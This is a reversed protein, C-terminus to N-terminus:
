GLVRVTSVAQLCKTKNSPPLSDGAMQSHANPKPHAEIVARLASEHIGEHKVKMADLAARYVGEASDFAGSLKGVYPQVVDEAEHIANIRKITAQEADRRAADVAIRIREDAGKSAAALATDMAAKSVIDEKGGPAPAGPTPPPNDAAAAPAMSKCLEMIAALTQDDVKGKLMAGIKEAPGDADVAPVDDDLDDQKEIADLLQVVDQIDADQALKPKIAAELKPRQEKWNAKTLTSTIEIVKADTALAKLKPSVMFAGRLAAARRALAKVKTMGNGKLPQSDGVMVDPGCRGAVVLSVHNGQIGRMVGDYQVGDYTGPTMDARYRYGCSLERKEGSEIDQIAEATWVILSNKLYPAEFVADTGTTGVVRGFPHDWATTPTHTDLLPIGNFTEAAKALEEPDRLLQYIREPDLGLREWDPIEKGMYPCVNAKSINTIEVRLRGDQDYTRVSARDFALKDAAIKDMATPEQKPLSALVAAVGPHLPQPPTDPQAWVAETHEPNLTVEFPQQVQAALTTFDVGDAVTRALPQLDAAGLAFGTEESLERRATAEADEGPEM